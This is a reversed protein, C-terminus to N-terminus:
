VGLPEQEAPTFANVQDRHHNVIAKIVQVDDTITYLEEDGPSITHTHDLLYTRIFMDLGTWFESGVLIIPAPPMKKTQILTIVEFFEDLTGYGGPFFVYACAGYVLMVKRVFFYRFDMEDTAYPNAHQEHPLKINLGIADGGSESAGRDAAEMIGGGGGSFIAYGEQSLAAAVEEDKKYYPNNAKFRASGFFTVTDNYRGVLEFGDAFEKEIRSIRATTEHQMEQLAIERNLLKVIKKDSM